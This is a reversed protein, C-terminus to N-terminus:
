SFKAWLPFKLRDLVQLICFRQPDAFDFFEGRLRQQGKVGANLTSAALVDTGRRDAAHIVRWSGQDITHVAGGM